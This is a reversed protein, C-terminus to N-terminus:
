RAAVRGANDSRRGSQRAQGGGSRPQPHGWLPGGRPGYNDSRRRPISRQGATSM